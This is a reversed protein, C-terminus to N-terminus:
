KKSTKNGKFFQGIIVYYFAIVLFVFWCKTAISQVGLWYDLVLESGIFTILIAIFGVGEKTALAKM